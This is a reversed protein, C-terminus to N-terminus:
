ACPWWGASTARERPLPRGGVHAHWSAGSARQWAVWGAAQKLVCWALTLALALNSRPGNPRSRHGRRRLLPLPLQLAGCCRTKERKNKKAKRNKSWERAGPEKKAQHWHNHSLTPTQRATRPPPRAVEEGNKQTRSPEGHRPHVSYKTPRQAASPATVGTQMTGKEEKEIKKKADDAMKLDHHEGGKRQEDKEKKCAHEVQTM